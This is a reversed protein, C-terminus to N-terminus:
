FTYKFKLQRKAVAIKWNNIKSGDLKPTLFLQRKGGVAAAAGAEPRSASFTTTLTAAQWCDFTTLHSLFVKKHINKRITNKEYSAKIIQSRKNAARKNVGATKSVQVM